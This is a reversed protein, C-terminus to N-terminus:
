EECKIIKILNLRSLYLLKSSILLSVYIERRKKRKKKKNQKLKFCQVVDLGKMMMMKMM